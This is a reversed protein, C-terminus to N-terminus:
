REDDGAPDEKKGTIGVPQLALAFGIEARHGNQSEAFPM